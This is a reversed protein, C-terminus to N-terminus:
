ATGRKYLMFGGVALIAFTLGLVWGLKGYIRANSIEIKPQGNDEEQAQAESQRLSGTGELTVEYSASRVRYTHAHTQPEEGLSDIGDGALTVSPPTVLFTNVQPDIMKGQFKSGAPLTYSIDFRSEGPKVPYSIKYINPQSTKEADRPIPMGGATNIVVQPKGEADPPIFFQVSGKAPDSYTLQSKNDFLFTESVRVKDAGPEILIMHQAARGVAPDKTSDFVKVQIGSTPSGPTIMTNYTAAGFLAQVLAPGPPYDKDIKFKGEADSKTSGLNQMGSQSPQVLSVIVGAQPKGTTANVVVGDVGAALWSAFALILLAPKM